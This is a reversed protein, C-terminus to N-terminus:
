DLRYEKYKNKCPNGHSILMEMNKLDIIISAITMWKIKEGESGIHCCISDPYNKHDSLINKLLDMDRTENKKLMETARNFRIVSNRGRKGKLKLPHNTHIFCDGKAEIIASKSISNEIDVIGNKSVIMSNIGMSRPKAELDKIAENINKADCMSRLVFAEPIGLKHTTYLSNGTFAIGKSNLCAAIFQPPGLYSLALIDPKYKQRLKLVYLEDLFSRTWDENHGLFIGNKTRLFITTCKNANDVVEDEFNLAFYDYFDAEAGNAIGKIEDIYQPYKDCYFLLRKGRKVFYNFPRGTHKLYKEKSTKILRSIQKRCKQGIQFGIEYNSGEVEVVPIKKM